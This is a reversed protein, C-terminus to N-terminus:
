LIDLPKEPQDVWLHWPVLGGVGRTSLIDGFMVFHGHSACHGRLTHWGGRPILRALGWSRARGGRSLLFTRDRWDGARVDAQWVWMEM